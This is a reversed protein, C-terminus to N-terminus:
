PSPTVTPTTNTSSESGNLPATLGTQTTGNVLNLTDTPNGPNLNSPPEGPPIQSLGSEPPIQDSGPQNQIGINDNM